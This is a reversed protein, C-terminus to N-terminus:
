IMHKDIIIIIFDTTIKHFRLSKAERIGYRIKLKWSILTSFKHAFVSNVNGSTDSNRGNFFGSFGDFFCEGILVLYDMIGYVIITWVM